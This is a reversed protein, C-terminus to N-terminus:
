RLARLYGWSERLGRPRVVALLAVYVVLGVLAASLSGLVVAPPLFGLVALVAIVAAALALGRVASSLADLEVLLAALVFLTSIALAVALGDLDALEVAVWALVLHLGLAGVAILPLARLREVVFALPFAVNVGVSVAMWPALVVVLRGVETGVDGGYADGLFAEVVDAGAVAFVGAAAGIFAFAVWSASVVHRAALEPSLGSRALPV